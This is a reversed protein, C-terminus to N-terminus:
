RREVREEKLGPETKCRSGTMWQMTFDAGHSADPQQKPTAGNKVQLRGDQPTKITPPLPPTPQRALDRDLNLDGLRKLETKFDDLM